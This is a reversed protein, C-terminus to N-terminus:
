LDGYLEEDEKKAANKTKTEGEVFVDESIAVGVRHWARALAPSTGLPSARLEEVLLPGGFREVAKNALALNKDFDEGWDQRLLELGQEVLRGRAALEESRFDAYFGIVAAAQEQSLGKQHAVERFSKLVPDDPPAVEPPIDFRYGEPSDPVQSAGADQPSPKEGGAGEGEGGEDEAPPVSPAPPEKEGGEPEGGPKERGEKAPQDQGGPEQDAQSETTQNGQEGATEQDLAKEEAPTQEPM